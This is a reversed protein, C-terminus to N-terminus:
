RAVVASKSLTCVASSVLIALISPSNLLMFFSRYASTPMKNAPSILYMKKGYLKLGYPISSGGEPPKEKYARNGEEILDGAPASTVALCVAAEPPVLIGGSGLNDRSRANERGNKAAAPVPHGIGGYRARSTRCAQGPPHRRRWRRRRSLGGGSAATLLAPVM